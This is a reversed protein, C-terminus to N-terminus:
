YRYTMNIKQTIEKCVCVRERERERERERKREREGERERRERERELNILKFFFLTPFITTISAFM